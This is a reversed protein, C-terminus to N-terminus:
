NILGAGNVTFWVTARARYSHGNPEIVRDDTIPYPRNMTDTEFFECVVANDNVVIDILEWHTDDFSKNWRESMDHYMDRGMPEWNSSASARTFDPSMLEWMGKSDAENYCDIYALVTSLPTRDVSSATVHQPDDIIM